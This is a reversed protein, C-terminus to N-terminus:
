RAALTRPPTKRAIQQTAVADHWRLRLCENIALLLFQVNGVLYRRAMRRPEQVLRWVWELGAVRWAHPARSISGAFFDFLGGVGCLVNASLRHENRAIWEDQLPVGMAVLVVEAGSANAAEIALEEEKSGPKLYGHHTGAIADGLGFEKMKFQAREAVGPAGGLLFIRVGAKIADSALRPFLDTGNVNDALTRGAMRAAVALGSGDAYIRDASAVVARYSASASMENVVHANAFVARLRRGKQAADIWAASAGAVTTDEIAVDFLGIQGDTASAEGNWLLRSRAAPVLLREMERQADVM